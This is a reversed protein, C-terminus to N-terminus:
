LFIVATSILSSLVLAIGPRLLRSESCVWVAAGGWIFPLIFIALVIQNVQTWPLFLAMAISTLVSAVATLPVALVFVGVDRGDICLVSQQHTDNEQRQKTQKQQEMNLLVFIWASISFALLSYVTGFEVGAFQIWFYCSVIVLVWGTLTFQVASLLFGRWSVYLCALALLGSILAFVFNLM